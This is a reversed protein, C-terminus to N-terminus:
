TPRITPPIPSTSSTLGFAQDVLTEGDPASPNVTGTVLFVATEGAGLSSRGATYSDTGNFGLHFAPGSQQVFSVPTVGPPLVDALGVSQADSPGKNSLTVTYTVPTGAVVTAPGANTVVIDAQASAVTTWSSSNDSPVPDTQDMSVTATNPISTNRFISPDVRATIVITATALGPMSAITDTVQNGANTM